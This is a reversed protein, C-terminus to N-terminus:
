RTPGVGPAGCAIFNIAISRQIRQPSIPWGDEYHQDNAATITQAPPPSADAQSRYREATEDANESQYLTRLDSEIKALPEYGVKGPFARLQTALM